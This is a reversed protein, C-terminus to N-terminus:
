LLNHYAYLAPTGGTMVFLVRSNPALVGTEIDHVMGAFAKGSYVPDILLGETQALLRLCRKMEATVMGYASGMQAPNIHIAMVPTTAAQGLLHLTQQRLTQTTETTAQLTHLVSHAQVHRPRGLLEFGALLGAHTGSSGNAVHIADFTVGMEQEQAAIELAAEVYGLCGLAVSGGTPIFYPHHGEAQLRQQLQEIVKDAPMQSNAHHLHAGFLDNLVLNGNHHYDYESNDVASALVLECRLGLRACAAATLRAHNSQIGGTTIIVDAGQALADGLLYELKRLKNGGQGLRAADDHKIYVEIQRGTCDLARELGYLRQIPTAGELLSVKPFASLITTPTHQM